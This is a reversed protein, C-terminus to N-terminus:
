PQSTSGPGGLATNYGVLYNLMAAYAWEDGNTAPAFSLGRSSMYQLFEPVTKGKASFKGTLHDSVDPQQLATLADDLQNLFRKAAICESPTLANINATVKAQLARLDDKMNAVTGPDVPPKNEAQRVADQLRQNIREVEPKYADSKLSTPWPLPEGEKVRRLLGVNGGSRSTLNLHKLVNEDITVPPGKGWQSQKNLLDKYVADLSSGNLIEPLPPDRMARRLDYRQMQERRDQVSPTNAQEYLWEDFIRRRTDLQSQAAQQQVIRAQQDMISLQGQAYVVSSVGQLTNGLSFDGYFPGYSGPWWGSGYGGGGGWSSYPNGFNNSLSGGFGPSM